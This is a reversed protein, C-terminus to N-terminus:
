IAVVLKGQNSRVERPNGHNGGCPLGAGQWATRRAVRGGGGSRVGRANGGAEAERGGRSRLLGDDRYSRVPGSSDVAADRAGAAATRRSRGAGCDRLGAMRLHRVRAHGGAACSQQIRRGHRGLHRAHRRRPSVPPMYTERKSMWSLCTPDLSLLENRVLAQGPGPRPVSTETWEFDTVKALGEHRRALRWQRNLVDTM